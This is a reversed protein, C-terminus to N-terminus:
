LWFSNCKQWMEYLQASLLILVSNHVEHHSISGDNEQACCLVLKKLFRAAIKAVTNQKRKQLAWNWNEYEQLITLISWLVGNVSWGFFKESVNFAKLAHDTKISKVSQATVLSSSVLVCTISHNKGKKLNVHCKTSFQTKSVASILSNCLLQPYIIFHHCM